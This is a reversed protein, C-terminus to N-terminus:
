RPAVPQRNGRAGGISGGRADGHLVRSAPSTATSAAARSGPYRSYIPLRRIPMARSAPWPAAFLRERQNRDVKERPTGPGPRLRRSGLKQADGWPTAVMQAALIDPTMDANCLPELTHPEHVVANTDSERRRTGSNAPGRAVHRMGWRDQLM